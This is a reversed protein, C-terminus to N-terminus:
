TSIMSMVSMVTTSIMSIMSMMSTVTSADDFVVDPSTLPVRVRVVAYVFV